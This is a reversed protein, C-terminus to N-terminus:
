FDIKLALNNNVNRHLYIACGNGKPQAPLAYNQNAMSSTNRSGPFCAPIMYFGPGAGVLDEDKLM